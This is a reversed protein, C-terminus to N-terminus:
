EKSFIQLQSPPCNSLNWKNDRVDICLLTEGPHLCSRTHSVPQHSFAEGEGSTEAFEVDHPQKLEERFKEAGAVGLLSQPACVNDNDCQAWICQSWPWMGSADCCNSQLGYRETHGCAIGLLHVIVVKGWCEVSKYLDQMQFYVNPEIWWFLVNEAFVHVKLSYLTFQACPPLRTSGPPPPPEWLMRSFYIGWVQCVILM